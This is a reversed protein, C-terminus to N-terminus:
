LPRQRSSSSASAGGPRPCTRLYTYIHTSIHPYTYIHTYIHTSIHLYTHIDGDLNRYRGVQVPLQLALLRPINVVVRHLLGGSVLELVVAAGGPPVEVLLARARGLASGAGPLVRCVRCTDRYGRTVISVHGAVTAAARARM